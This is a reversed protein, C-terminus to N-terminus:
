SAEYSDSRIKWTGPRRFSICRQQREVVSLGAPDGSITDATTKCKFLGHMLVPDSLLIAISTEHAFSNLVAFPSRQAEAM